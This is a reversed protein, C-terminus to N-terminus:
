DGALTNGASTRRPDRLLESDILEHRQMYTSAIAQVTAAVPLALFAGLAGFVAGFSLVVIFAVAPNLSLAMSSIKPSLWLNEVQQYLIIFVLILIAGTINGSTLAFVIPLAGGIYTGITPVFQSVVGTFIALPLAYPINIIELFIYTFVSSVAALILRSNIYDSVKRQTIEWLRLFEEQRNPTVWACISARFRPGAAALYYAVLLVVSTNFLFSVLGAGIALVQGAANQGYENILQKQLDNMAPIEVDIRGEIWKASTEYLDPLSGILQATQEVFMQGFVAMLVISGILMSLLVTMTALGRKWGRKVLWLVMPEMVLALFFAIVLNVFVGTVSGMARWLFIAVFVTLVTLMLARGFWRPPRPSTFWAPLDSPDHQAYARKTRVEIHEDAEALDQNAETHRQTSEAASSKRGAAEARGSGKKPDPSPTSQFLKPFRM